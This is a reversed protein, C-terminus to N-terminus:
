QAKKKNVFKWLLAALIISGLLAGVTIIIADLGLKGLNSVIQPNSGVELGLVFLLVWILVTIVKSIFSLNKKRFIYGVGIGLLMLALVKFM